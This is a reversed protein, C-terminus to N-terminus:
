LQTHFTYYNILNPAHTYNTMVKTPNPPPLSPSPPHYVHQVFGLAKDCTLLHKSFTGSHLNSYMSLVWDSWRGPAYSQTPNSGSNTPRGPFAKVCSALLLSRNTTWADLQSCEMTSWPRQSEQKLRRNSHSTKRM